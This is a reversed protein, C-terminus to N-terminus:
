AFPGPYLTRLAEDYTLPPDALVQRLRTGIHSLDGVNDNLGPVFVRAIRVNRLAGPTLDIVFPVCGPVTRALRDCIDRVAHGASQPVDLPARKTGRRAKEFWYSWVWTKAINTDLKIRPEETVRGYLNLSLELAAKRLAIRQDHHAASGFGVGEYPRSLLRATMAFVPIGIDTTFEYAHVDYGSARLSDAIASSDPDDVSAVDVETVPRMARQLGFWADHQVVEYLGALTADTLNNAAAMGSSGQRPWVVRDVTQVRSTQYALAFPVLVPAGSPINHAATWDVLADDAYPADRDETRYGPILGEMVLDLAVTPVDRGRSRVWPTEPGPEGANRELWEYTASVRAALPNTSVGFGAFANRASAPGHLPRSRDFGRKSEQAFVIKVFDLARHSAPWACDTIAVTQAFSAIASSGIAHADDLTTARMGGRVYPADALEFTTPQPKAKAGCTPCDPAFPIELGPGRMRWLSGLVRPAAGVGDLADLERLTHQVTAAHHQESEFFTLEFDDPLTSPGAFSKRLLALACSLCRTRGPHVYPGITTSAGFPFIWLQEAGREWLRLALDEAAQTTLGTAVVVHTLHSAPLTDIADLGARTSVSVADAIADVLEGDGILACHRQAPPISEEILTPTLALVADALTDPEYFDALREQLATITLPEDLASLIREVDEADLGSVHNVGGNETDVFVLPDGASAIRAGFRRQYALAVKSPMM